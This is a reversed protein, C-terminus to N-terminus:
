RALRATLRGATGDGASFVPAERKARPGRRSRAIVSAMRAILATVDPSKALFEDIGSRAGEPVLDRGSPDSESLVPTMIGERKLRQIVGIGAIDPLAVDLVSIGYPTVRGYARAQGRDPPRAITAQQRLAMAM